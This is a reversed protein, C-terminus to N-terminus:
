RKLQDTFPCKRCAAELRRSTSGDLVGNGRCWLLFQFVSDQNVRRLVSAKIAKYDRHTILGEDRKISARKLERYNVGSMFLGCVGLMAPVIGFQALSNMSQFITGGRGLLAGAALQYDTGLFVCGSGVLLGFASAQPGQLKRQLRNSIAVLITGIDM